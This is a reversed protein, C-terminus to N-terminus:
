SWSHEILPTRKRSSTRIALAELLLVGIIHLSHASGWGCSSRHHHNYKHHEPQRHQRHQKWRRWFNSKNLCIHCHCVPDFTWRLHLSGRTGSGDVACVGTPQRLRRRPMGTRRLSEPGQLRRRLVRRTRHLRHMAPLPGQSSSPSLM